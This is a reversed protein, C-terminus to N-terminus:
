IELTNAAKSFKLSQSSMFLAQSFMLKFILVEPFYDLDTHISAAYVM